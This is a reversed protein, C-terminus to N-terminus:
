SRLPRKGAARPGRGREERRSRRLGLDRRLLRLESRPRAARPGGAFEERAGRAREAEARSRAAWIREVTYVESESRSSGERGPELALWRGGAEERSALSSCGGAEERSALPAECAM